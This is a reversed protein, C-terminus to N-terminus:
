IDFSTTHKFEKSLLDKSPTLPLFTADAILTYSCFALLVRAVDLM